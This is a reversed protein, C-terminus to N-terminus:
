TKRQVSENYVSKVIRKIKLSVMDRGSAENFVRNHGVIILKSKARSIAVNVLRDGTEGKYLTGIPETISDVIDWIIVDCESGQFTHITGVIIDYKGGEFDKLDKKFDLVQQRYPTIVGISKIPLDKAIIEKLLEIIRKRAGTNYKSKNRSYKVKNIDENELSIFALHSDNPPADKGYLHFLQSITHLKGGYYNENILDAIKDATRRQNVLMNLAKHRIIENENGLLSFLDRHLWKKACMSESLAIPGLQKFDGSIIIRKKVKSALVLLNPISMMSGEDIVLNDIEMNEFADEVLYKSATLFVLKAGSLFKSCEKDYEKKLSDKQSILSLRKEENGSENKEIVSIDETIQSLKASIAILKSNEFKIEKISRIFDSQSYGLRIIKKEKLIDKRTIKFYENIILEVTSRLLGDVAVNAISCVVTKEDNSNYLNLLLRALTHTKGTGPPGWIFTIDNNLSSKIARKQSDDLGKDWFKEKTDISNPFPLKKLIKWLPKECERIDAIRDKLKYLLNVGSSQIRATKERINSTTQFSLLEDKNNFDLITVFYYKDYGVKLKVNVGESFSVFEDNEILVKAQYIKLNNESVVLKIDNIQIYNKAQAKRTENIEDDIANIIEKLSFMDKDTEEGTWIYPHEKYVKDFNLRKARGKREFYSNYQDVIRKVFLSDKDNFILNGIQNHMLFDNARGSLAMKRVFFVFLENVDTTKVTSLPYYDYKTPMKPYAM